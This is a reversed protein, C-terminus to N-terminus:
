PRAGGPNTDRNGPPRIAQLVRDEVRRVSRTVDAATEIGMAHVLLGPPSLEVDLALTGPTLTILDAIVTAILSSDSRLPVRVVASRLRADTPAIVALAVRTSSRLLDVILMAVLRLCGFPSVHHGPAAARRPFAALALVAVLVGAITNAPTLEGVLLLWIAVLGVAGAVRGTTLNM